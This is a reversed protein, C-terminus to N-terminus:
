FIGFSSSRFNESLLPPPSTTGEVIKLGYWRDNCVWVGQCVRRSVRAKVCVEQCVCAGVAGVAGVYQCEGSKTRDLFEVTRSLRGAASVSEDGPGLDSPWDVLTLWTM